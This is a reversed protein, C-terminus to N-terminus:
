KVRRMDLCDKMLVQASRSTDFLRSVAREGIVATLEKENLNTTWLTPRAMRYREDVIGHYENALYGSPDHGHAGLDDFVLWACSKLRKRYHDATGDEFRRMYGAFDVGAAHIVDVRRNCLELAAGGALLSKGVGPDGGILLTPASEAKVWKTVANFAAKAQSRAPGQPQREPSFVHLATPIEGPQFGAVVLRRNLPEPGSCTSCARLNGDEQQLWMLGGCTGCVGRAEIEYAIGLERAEGDTLPRGWKESICPIAEALRTKPDPVDGDRRGTLM